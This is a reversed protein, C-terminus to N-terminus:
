VFSDSMTIVRRGVVMYRFGSAIAAVETKLGIASNAKPYPMVWTYQDLFLTHPQFVTHEKRNKM